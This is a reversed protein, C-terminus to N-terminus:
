PQWKWIHDKVRQCTTLEIENKAAAAERCLKAREVTDWAIPRAQDDNMEKETSQRMHLLYKGPAIHKFEFSGDGRVMTEAYRMVDDAASFEAPILHARIRSPLKSGENAPVVRGNLSAAGEAIIVEVGSLKEGSKLAIGNRSADIPKKASGSAPQTIARIYWGDGPLDAKIRFRGAALGSLTFAGKEDPAGGMVGRLYRFYPAIAEISPRSEDEPAAILLVDGITARAKAEAGEECPNKGVSSSEIKVKGSISTPPAIKLAVGSVDAGKVVVRRPASIAFDTERPNPLFATLEYEGDSVGSMVFSKVSFRSTMGVLRSDAGSTLMITLNESMSGPAADGNITGSITYGREERHRIDAGTIEDGSRVTIEVATARPSSPHWTIADRGDYFGGSLGWQDNSACVVYVGPELGYLRYVGRDDTLKRNTERIAVPFKPGAELERIKLAEVRAGVIPEGYSDTVRGTIVGGKILNISVNEGPRHYDRESDTPAVVYGPVNASIMYSGPDLGTAKFKGEDDTVSAQMGSSIKVGAKIVLIQAGAIPRGADNAVRGTIMGDRRMQSAAEANEKAGTQAVAVQAPAACFLILTLANMIKM